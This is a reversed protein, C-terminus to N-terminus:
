QVPFPISVSQTVGGSTGQVHLTYNAITTTKQTQVYVYGKVASAGTIAPPQTSVTCTPISVAGSPASVSCTLPVLGTFGGSPTVTIPVHISGGRWTITFTSGSLSFSKTSTSGIVYPTSSVVSTGLTPSVAIAKITLSSSVLIPGSYRTSAATPTSGNTTYYMVADPTQSTLTVNQPSSYTGGGPSFSPHVAQTTYTWSILKQSSSLGGTGGTFGVYATNAGVVQPINMAKSYTFTKNTVLDLLKLNLTLGTYSVTAQLSDGSNLQIGSPSIDV